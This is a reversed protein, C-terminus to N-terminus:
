AAVIMAMIFTKTVAITFKMQDKRSHLNILTNM